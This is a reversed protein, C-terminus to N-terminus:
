RAYFLTKKFGVCYERDYNHFNGGSWGIRM